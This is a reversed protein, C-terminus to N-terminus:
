NLTPLLNIIPQYPSLDEACYADTMPAIETDLYTQMSTYTSNQLGGTESSWLTVYDVGLLLPYILQVFLDPKRVGRYAASSHSANHYRHWAYAMVRKGGVRAALRQAERVNNHVYNRNAEFHTNPWAVEPSGEAYPWGNTDVGSAYFQYISIVLFDLERFLPLLRDNMRRHADGDISDYGNWYRRNILEYWSIKANPRVRRIARVTEIFLSLGFEEWLQKARTM